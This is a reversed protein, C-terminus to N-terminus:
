IHILSLTYVTYLEEAHSSHLEYRREVEQSQFIGTRRSVDEVTPQGTCTSFELLHEIRELTYERGTIDHFAEGASQDRCYIRDPSADEPWVSATLVYQGWNREVARYRIETAVTRIEVQYGQRKYVDLHTYSVAKSGDPLKKGPELCFTPQANPSVGEQYYSMM